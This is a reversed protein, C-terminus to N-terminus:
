RHHDQGAIGMKGGKLGFSLTSGNRVVIVTVTDGETTAQVAAGLEQYSNIARGNYEILIDGVQIGAKAAQTGEGVWTLKVCNGAGIVFDASNNGRRVTVEVYMQAAGEIYSSIYYDGEPLFTFEAQTREGLMDYRSITGDKSSVAVYLQSRDKVEMDIRVNVTLNCRDAISIDLTNEGAVIWIDQSHLSDQQNFQVELAYQGPKLAQTQYAGDAALMAYVMGNADGNAMPSSKKDAKPILSVYANTPVKGGGSSVKGKLIGPAELLFEVKNTGRGVIVEQSVQAYGEAQTYCTWTGESIGAYELVGTAGALQQPSAYEGGSNTFWAYNLAVPNGSQDKASVSVRCGADISFDQQNGGSVLNVERTVNKGAYWVNLVNKGPRQSELRYKGEADTVTSAGGSGMGPDIRKRSFKAESSAEELYVLREAKDAERSDGWSKSGDWEEQDGNGLMVTAGPLAVGATDTVTGFVTAARTLKLNLEGGKSSLTVLEEEELVWGPASATVRLKGERARLRYSGDKNRFSQSAIADWWGGGDVAVTVTYEAPFGDDCSVIGALMVPVEFTFKLQTGPKAAQQSSGLDANGATVNYTHAEDLQDFRFRGSDDTETERTNRQVSRFYEDYAAHTRPLDGYDWAPPNIPVGSSIATVRMGAVVRGDTFVVSGLITGNGRDDPNSPVKTVPAVPTRPTPEPQTAPLRVPQREPQTIKAIEPPADIFVNAPPPASETQMLGYIGFLIACVTVVSQVVNFISLKPARM